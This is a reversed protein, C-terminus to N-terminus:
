DIGLDLRMLDNSATQPSFAVEPSRSRVPRRLHAPPRCPQTETSTQTPPRVQRRNPFRSEPRGIPMARVAARQLRRYPGGAQAHDIWVKKRIDLRQRNAAVRRM